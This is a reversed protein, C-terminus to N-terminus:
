SPVARTLTQLVSVQQKRAQIAVGVKDFSRKADIVAAKAERDDPTRVSKMRADALVDIALCKVDALRKLEAFLDNLITIQEAFDLARLDEASLRDVNLVSPQM